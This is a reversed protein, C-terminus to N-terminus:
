DVSLTHFSPTTVVFREGDYLGARLRYTGAPVPSGTQDVAAWGLSLTTTDGPDLRLRLACGAQVGLYSRWVVTEASDLVEIAMGNCILSETNIRSSTPNTVTLTFEAQSGAQVITPGDLSLALAQSLPETAGSGCAVLTVAGALLV